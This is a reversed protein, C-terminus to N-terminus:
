FYLWEVLVCGLIFYVKGLWGDFFFIFLFNNFNEVRLVIELNEVSRVGWLSGNTVKAM